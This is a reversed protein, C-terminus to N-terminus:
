PYRDKRGSRYGMMKNGPLNPNTHRKVHGGQKDRQMM